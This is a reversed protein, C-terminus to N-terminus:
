ARDRKRAPPRESRGDGATAGTSGEAGRTARSPPRGKRVAWSPRRGEGPKVETGNRSELRTGACDPFQDPPPGYGRRPLPDRHRLGRAHLAYSSCRSYRFAYEEGGRVCTGSLRAIRAVGGAAGGHATAEFHGTLPVLTEVFVLQRAFHVHTITGNGYHEVGLYSPHDAWAPAARRTKAVTCERPGGKTVKNRGKGGRKPQPHNANEALAARRCIKSRYVGSSLVHM